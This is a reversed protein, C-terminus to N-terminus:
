REVDLSLMWLEWADDFEVIALVVDAVPGWRLESVQPQQALQLDGARHCAEEDDATHTAVWLRSSTMSCDLRSYEAKADAVPELGLNRRRHGARCPELEGCAPRLRRQPM